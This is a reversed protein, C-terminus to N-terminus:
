GEEEVRSRGGFSLRRTAWLAPPTGSPPRLTGPPRPPSFVCPVPSPFPLGGPLFGASRSERVWTAGGRPSRWTVRSGDEKRASVGSSPMEAGSRLRQRPRLRLPQLPASGAPLSPSKGPPPRPTPNRPDRPAPSAAPNGPEPLAREPSGQGRSGRTPRLRLDNRHSVPASGTSGPVTGSRTSEAGAWRGPRVPTAQVRAEDPGPPRAPTEAGPPSVTRSAASTGERPARPNRSGRGTNRGCPRPSPPKRPPLFWRCSHCSKRKRGLDLWSIAM